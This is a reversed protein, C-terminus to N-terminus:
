QKNSMTFQKNNLNSLLSLLLGWIFFSYIGPYPQRFGVKFSNDIFIFFLTIFTIGLFIPSSMIQYRSKIILHVTYIILSFIPLLSILGFNYAFDLYYNHASPYKSRDPREKHGFLTTDIEDIIGKAYYKWYFSREIKDINNAVVIPSSFKGPIM